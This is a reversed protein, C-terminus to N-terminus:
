FFCIFLRHCFISYKLTLIPSAYLLQQAEFQKYSRSQTYVTDTGFEIHAHCDIHPKTGAFNKQIETRYDM